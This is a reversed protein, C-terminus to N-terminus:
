EINDGADDEEPVAVVLRGLKMDIEPVNARTFAILVEDGDDRAIVLVDSAGYNHIAAVKGLHRGLTDVASLGILDAHYFEETDTAPLVDRAVFLELGKLKEAASRDAVERFSAVAEGNKGARLASITFVRGDKTHLPGYAGLKDPTATFTKLRVEGKLGHVGIIAALLVERTSRPAATM